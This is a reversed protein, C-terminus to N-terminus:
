GDPLAAFGIDSPEAAFPVIMRVPRSPYPNGQAVSPDISLALLGASLVLQAIVNCRDLCAIEFM